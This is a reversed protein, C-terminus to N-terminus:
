KKAAKLERERLITKIQAIERRHKKFAAPDEVVDTVKRFRLNFLGKVLTDLDKKLEEDPKGQLEELRKRQKAM